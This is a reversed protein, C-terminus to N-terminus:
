RTVTQIERAFQCIELNAMHYIQFNARQNKRFLKRPNRLELTRFVTDAKPHNGVNFNGFGM